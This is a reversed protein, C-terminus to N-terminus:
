PMLSSAYCNRPLSRSMSTSWDADLVEELVRYGGCLRVYETVDGPPCLVVGWGVEYKVALVGSNM